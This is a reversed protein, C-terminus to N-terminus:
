HPRGATRKEVQFRGFMLSGGSESRRGVIQQCGRGANKQKIQAGSKPVSHKEYDRPAAKARM